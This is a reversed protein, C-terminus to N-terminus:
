FNVILAPHAQQSFQLVGGDLQRALACLQLAHLFFQPESAQLRWPTRVAIGALGIDGHESAAQVPLFAAGRVGIGLELRSVHDLDCQTWFTDDIEDRVRLLVSAQLGRSLRWPRPLSLIGRTGRAIARAVM